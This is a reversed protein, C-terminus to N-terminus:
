GLFKQIRQAARSLEKPNAGEVLETGSPNLELAAHGGSKTGFLKEFQLLKYNARKLGLQTRMKRALEFWPRETILETKLAAIGADFAAFDLDFEAVLSAYGRLEFPLVPENALVSLLLALLRAGSVAEGTDVSLTQVKHQLFIPAPSLTVNVFALVGADALAEVAAAVASTLVPSATVNGVTASLSGTEIYAAAQKRLLGSHKDAWASAMGPAFSVFKINRRPKWGRALMDQCVAHLELFQATGHQSHREDGVVITEGTIGQIDYEYWADDARAQASSATRVIFTYNESHPPVAYVAVIPVAYSAPPYLPVWDDPVLYAVADFRQSADRLQDAVEVSDRFHVIGVDNYTLEVSKGDFQFVSSHAALEIDVEDNGILAAVYSSRLDFRRAFMPMLGGYDGTDEAAAQVDRELAQVRKADVGRLMLQEIQRPAYKVQHYHNYDRLTSTRTMFVFQYILLLVCGILALAVFRHAALSYM